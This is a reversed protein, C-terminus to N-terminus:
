LMDISKIFNVYKIIFLVSKNDIIFFNNFNMDTPIEIYEKM